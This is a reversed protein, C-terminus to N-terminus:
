YHHEELYNVIDNKCGECLVNENSINLFSSNMICSAPRKEITGCVSCYDSHLCDGYTLQYVFATKADKIYSVTKGDKSLAAAPNTGSLAPVLRLNVDEYALSIGDALRKEFTTIIEHDKTVFGGGSKAQIDLSIDRIKGDAALYKVPYSFLRLTNTGDANQFVFTNLNTEAEEVRGVYQKEATEEPDIIAPATYPEASSPVTEAKAVTAFGSFMGFVLCLSLLLSLM